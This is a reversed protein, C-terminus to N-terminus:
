NFIDTKEKEDLLELASQSYSHAMEKASQVNPNYNEFYPHKLAGEATIRKSPDKELMKSLLDMFLEDEFSEDFTLPNKEIRLKIIFRQPQEERLNFPFKKATLEYLTMGLAWIDVGADHPLCDLLEPAMYFRTGLPQDTLEDKTVQVSFEFDTIQITLPNLSSVLFNAPKVDHHIVGADHITKLINLAQYAISCIHSPNIRDVGLQSYFDFLDVYPCFDMVAFLFPKGDTLENSVLFTENFKMVSPVNDFLHLIELQNNFNDRDEKTEFPITKIIYCKTKESIEEDGSLPIFAKFVSNKAYNSIQGIVVYQNIRTCPKIQKM